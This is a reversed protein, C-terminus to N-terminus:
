KIIFEPDQAKIPNLATFGVNCTNSNLEKYYNKWNDINIISDKNEIYINDVFNLNSEKIEKNSINKRINTLDLMPKILAKDRVIYDKLNKMNNNSLICLFNALDISLDDFMHRLSSSGGEIHVGGHLFVNSLVQKWDEFLNFIVIVNDLNNQKAWTIFQSMNMFNCEFEVTNLNLCFDDEFETNKNFVFIIRLRNNMKTYQDCLVKLDCALPVKFSITKVVVTTQDHRNDYVNGFCAIFSNPILLFKYKFESHTEDNNVLLIM